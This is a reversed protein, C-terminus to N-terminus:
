HSDQINKLELSFWSQGLGDCTLLEQGYFLASLYIQFEKIYAAGVKEIHFYNQVLYKQLIDHHYTIVLHHSWVQSIPDSSVGGWFGTPKTIYKIWSLLKWLSGNETRGFQILWQEYNYKNNNTKQMYRYRYGETQQNFLMEKFHLFYIIRWLSVLVFWWSAVVSFYVYKM